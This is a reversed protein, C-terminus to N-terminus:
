IDLTGQRTTPVVVKGDSPDPWVKVRGNNSASALTGDPAFALRNVPIGDAKQLARVGSPEVPWVRLTKDASASVVGRGDPLFAVDLVARAHGKLERVEHSALDVTSVTGDAGAAALWAGDPSFAVRRAGGKHMALAFKHNKKRNLFRLRVAPALGM